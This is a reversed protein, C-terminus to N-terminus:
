LSEDSSDSAEGSCTRPFLISLAGWIVREANVATGPVDEENVGAVMLFVPPNEGNLRRATDMIDTGVDPDLVGMLWDAIAASLVRLQTESAQHVNWVEFVVDGRDLVRLIDYGGKPWTDPRFWEQPMWEGHMFFHTLRQEEISDSCRFVVLAEALSANMALCWEQPSSYMFMNDSFPARLTGESAGRSLGFRKLHAAAKFGLPTYGTTGVFDSTEPQEEQFDKVAQLGAFGSGAEGNSVVVLATRRRQLPGEVPHAAPGASSIRASAARASAKASVESSTKASKKKGHGTSQKSARKAAAKSAAASSRTAMTLLNDRAYDNIHRYGRLSRTMLFIQTQWVYTASM